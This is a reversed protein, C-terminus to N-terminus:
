KFTYRTINNGSIVYLYYKTSLISKIKNRKDNRIYFSYLYKKTANNYIDVVDNNRFDKYTENQGRMKSVNYFKDGSVTQIQNVVRPSRLLKTQGNELTKTEIATHSLSDVTRKRKINGLDFDATIIENRYFHTYNIKENAHDITMDGDTDFVGDVQTKLADPFILYKKTATNLIGLESEKTKVLMTKFVYQHPSLMYFRSFYLRNIGTDYAMLSPLKGEFIIPVKGDSVSFYPYLVNITVSVFQHKYNDLKITDVKISKFDPAITSLLLPTKRHGLFLSDGHNGAFYYNDTPLQLTKYESRLPSIMKRKFDGQNDNIHPCFILILLLTPLTAILAGVVLLKKKNKSEITNIAIIILVICALNFILHENWDMKELIGGCSCPISDSFNLILYIYFTFTFMMGLSAFLGIMRSHKFFLVIVIIIESIITAYSFFGAYEGLIPSQGIQVQFNEFDTLKSVSAYVFLLILFYSIITAITNSINKM